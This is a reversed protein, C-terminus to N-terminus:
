RLRTCRVHGCSWQKWSEVPQHRERAALADIDPRGQQAHQGVEIDLGAGMGGVLFPLEDFQRRAQDVLDVVGGAGRHPRPQRDIRRRGGLDHVLEPQPRGGRRSGAPRPRSRRRAAGLAGATFAGVSACNRIADVRAIRGLSAASILSMNKAAPALSRASIRCLRASVGSFAEGRIGAARAARASWIRSIAANASSVSFKASSSPSARIRGCRIASCTTLSGPPSGSAQAARASSM